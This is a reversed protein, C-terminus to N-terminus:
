QVPKRMINEIPVVTENGCKNRNAEGRTSFAQADELKKTYSHLSGPAAVYRGDSNRKIVYMTM